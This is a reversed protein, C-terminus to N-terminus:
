GKRAAFDGCHEGHQGRGEGDSIMCSTTVRSPQRRLPHVESPSPRNPVLTQRSAIKTGM